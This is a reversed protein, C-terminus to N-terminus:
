QSWDYDKNTETFSEILTTGDQYKTFVCLGKTYGLFLDIIEESMFPINLLKCACNVLIIDAPIIAGVRKLSPVLSVYVSSGFGIESVSVLVAFLGEDHITRRVFKDCALDFSPADIIEKRPGAELYYKAM